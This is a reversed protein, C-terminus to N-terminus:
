ASRRRCPMAKRILCALWAATSCGCACSISGRSGSRWRPKSAPRPRSGVGRPARRLYELLALKGVGAEGRLVLVRSEGARVGELLRDLAECESRRGRPPPRPDSDSTPESPLKGRQADRGDRRPPASDIATLPFAMSSMRGGSVPWGVGGLYASSMSVVPPPRRMASIPTTTKRPSSTEGGRSIRATTTATGTMAMEATPAAATAAM